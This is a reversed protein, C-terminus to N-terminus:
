RYSTRAELHRNLLCSRTLSAAEVEGLTPYIHANARHRADVASKGHAELFDLYGEVAARVTLPRSSPGEFVRAGARFRDPNDSVVRVEVEGKLGVPRGVIGVLLPRTEERPDPRNVPGM